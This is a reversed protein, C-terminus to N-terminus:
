LGQGKMESFMRTVAEELQIRDDTRLSKIGADCESIISICKRLREIPIGSCDRLANRVAFERGKYSFSDTIEREGRGSMLALKARYLDLFSSAIASVLSPTEKQLDYLGALTEFAAERRGESIERALRYADADIRGTVLERVDRVTIEEGFRYASLKQIENGIMLLDSKCAEALTKAAQESIKSGNKEVGRVIHKILEGATKLKFECVLGKCACIHEALAKNSATLNKKGGCLDVATCYIILTTTEPDIGSIIEKLRKVDRQPLKDCDADNLLIVTRDAFVPLAEVCDALEDFDISDGPFFHYNLDRAEDPVLKKALNKAVSEVTAADKGFLLYCPAIGNKLERALESSGLIKLAAKQAM